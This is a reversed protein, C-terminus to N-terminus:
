QTYIVEDSVFAEMEMSQKKFYFCVGISVVITIFTIIVSFSTIVALIRVRRQLRSRGSRRVRKERSDM